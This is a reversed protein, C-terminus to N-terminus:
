DPLVRRLGVEVGTQNTITLDRRDASFQFEVVSALYPIWSAFRNEAIQVLRVQVVEPIEFPTLFLGGDDGEVVRLPYVGNEHVSGIFHWREAVGERVFGRAHLQTVGRPEGLATRIQTWGEMALNFYAESRYARSVLPLFAEDDGAELASLLEGIEVSPVEPVPNAVAPFLLIMSGPMGDSEINLSGSDSLSVTFVGAGELSYRGTFQEFGAIDPGIAAPPTVLELGSLSSAIIDRLTTSNFSGGMHSNSLVAYSIELDTIHGAEAVLGLTDDFGGHSVHVGNTRPHFWLGSGYRRGEISPSLHELTVRFPADLSLAHLLRGIDRARGLLGGSGEPHLYVPRELPNSLDASIAEGWVNASPEQYFGIEDDRWGPLRYGIGDLGFSAFIESHLYAEYDQGSVTEIIVKLLHYGFNNYAFRSGPESVLPRALMMEVYDTETEINRHQDWYDSQLGSRHELLELITISRKDTPIDPLYRSIPADLEVLQDAALAHIALATLFKTLSGLGLVTDPTNRRGTLRDAYGYAHEFRVCEGQAIWVSGSFGYDALVSLHDDLSQSFQRATVANPANAPCTSEDAWAMGFNVSVGTFVITITLVRILAHQIYAMKM